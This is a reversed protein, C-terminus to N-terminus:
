PSAILQLTTSERERAIGIHVARKLLQMDIDKPRYQVHIHVSKQTRPKQVLRRVQM